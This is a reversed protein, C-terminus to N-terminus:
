SKVNFYEKMIRLREKISGADNTGQISLRDFEILDYNAKSIDKEALVKNKILEDRFTAFKARPLKIGSKLAAKFLLYYIPIITQSRLLTDNDQFTKSMENLVDIVASETTKTKLIKNRKFLWVFNDLYIKKTDYVKKETDQTWNLFLLKCAIEKHQYRNNPFKVKKTFFNHKCVNNISLVMPGRIANRKEAANLPVAENLRLFMDDILDPDDTEVCVIPLDFSDFLGKLDPYDKAIEAYTKGVAKVKEDRYFKFDEALGFKNDLFMFITELRQRGDIVSYEYPKNKADRKDL